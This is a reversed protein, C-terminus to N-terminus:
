GLFLTLLPRCLFYHSSLSQSALCPAPNSGSVLHSVLFQCITEWRHTYCSWIYLKVKVRERSQSSSKVHWNLFDFVKEYLSFSKTPVQIWKITGLILEHQNRYFSTIIVDSLRGPFRFLLLCNPEQSWRSTRKHTCSYNRVIMMKGGWMM